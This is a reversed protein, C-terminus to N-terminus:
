VTGLTLVDLFRSSDEMMFSEFIAARTATIATAINTISGLRDQAASSPLARKALHAAQWPASAAPFGAIFAGAILPASAALILVVTVVLAFCAPTFLRVSSWILAM